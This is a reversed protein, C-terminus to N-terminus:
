EPLRSKLYTRLKKIEIEYGDAPALYAVLRRDGARDERVIVVGEKVAGHQRIAEEIEGLEIRFGRLKIQQDKRGVYHISGDSLYRGTDGTAYMREGIRKGIPNPTFKEATLAAQGIYGRALGEGGIQLEGPIGVAQPEGRRDLVYIETDAIPRGIPPATECYENVRAFSSYTTDESPGYLNYINKVGRQSRLQSVLESSLAEGALNVTLVSECLAGERLLERVATPVTNILTVDHAENAALANEVLNVEGGVSLPAFIEFVSLDFCISTSALVRRFEEAAFVETAWEILAAASRHEIAVGKPRGTSGSTYIVYALNGATAGSEVGGEGGVKEDESGEDLCLKRIGGDRITGVHRRETLVISTGSDEVLYALREDPYEPDLPLYAGGAKMVAIMGVVMKLSRRMCLGVVVEAGVGMERLRGALENARRNLGEYSLAEAGNVVAIRDPTREVQRELLDHIRRSKSRATETENWETVIQHRENETLIPLEGVRSEMNGVAGELLMQYHGLMRSVREGDFLGENYEIEAELRDGSGIVALTLDFKAVGIDVDEYRAEAGGFRLEEEAGELIFMVQFMPHHSLSREPRLEEVLKEFPLDQNAHAGLVVERIERIAERFSMGMEINSNLVLTNVFFGILREIEVRNRGATPTGVVIQERGTYRSLLAKFGALLTMYLTVGERLSVERLESSLWGPLMKRKRKGEYRQEAARARDMALDMVPPAKGIRKRWYEVQRELAEGRMWKRQWARM